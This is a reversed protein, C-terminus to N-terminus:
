LFLSCRIYIYMIISLIYIYINSRGGPYYCHGCALPVFHAGAL